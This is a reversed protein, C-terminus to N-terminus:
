DGQCAHVNSWKGTPFSIKQAKFLFSYRLHSIPFQVIHTTYAEIIVLASYTLEM